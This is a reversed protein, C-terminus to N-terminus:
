RNGEPAASSRLSSPVAPLRLASAATPQLTNNPRGTYLENTSQKPVLVARCASNQMCGWFAVGILQPVILVIRVVWLHTGSTRHPLPDVGSSGSFVKAKGIMNGIQAWLLKLNWSLSVETILLIVSTLLGAWVILSQPITNDSKFYQAVLAATVTLYVPLFIYRVGGFYRITAMTEKYVDAQSIAALSQAPRYTFEFGCNPAAQSLANVQQAVAAHFAAQEQATSDSADIVIRVPM